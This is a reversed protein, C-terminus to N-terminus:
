EITEVFDKSLFFLLKQKLFFKLLAESASQLHNTNKQIKMPFLALTRSTPHFVPKASHRCKWLLQFGAPLSSALLEAELSSCKREAGLDSVPAAPRVFWQILHDDNRTLSEECRRRCESSGTQIGSRYFRGEPLKSLPSLYCASGSRRSFFVCQNDAGHVGPFVVFLLLLLRRLLPPLLLLPLLSILSSGLVLVRPARFPQLSEWNPTVSPVRLQIPLWNLRSGGGIKWSDKRHPFM